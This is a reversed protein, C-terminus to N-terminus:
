LYEGHISTHHRAIEPSPISFRAGIQLSPLLYMGAPIIFGLEFDHEFRYEVIGEDVLTPQAQVRGFYSVSIDRKTKGGQSSASIRANFNFAHNHGVVKLPYKEARVLDWRFYVSKVEFDRTVLLEKVGDTLVLSVSEKNMTM